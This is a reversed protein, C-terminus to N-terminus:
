PGFFNPGKKDGFLFGMQFNGWLQDNIFIPASIMKMPVYEGTSMHRHFVQLMYKGRNRAAMLMRSRDMIRRNRANVDNWEHDGPIQPKSYEPHHVPVYANRDCAIAVVCNPHTGKTRALIDPLIREYYALAPTSYQAPDTRHIKTYQTTILQNAAVEGRVMAEEFTWTLSRAAALTLGIIHQNDEHTAQIHREIALATSQSLDLFMLHMGEASSGQVRAEAPGVGEIEVVGVASDAVGGRPLHVLAGGLSLDLTHLDYRLPGVAFSARAMFPIREFRRREGEISQRLVAMTRNKLRMLAAEMNASSKGARQSSAIAADAALKMSVAHGSAERIFARSAGAMDRVQQELFGKREIIEEVARIAPAVMDFQDAMDRLASQQREAIHRLAELQQRMMEPTAREFDSVAALIATSEGALGLAQEKLGKIQKAAQLTDHSVDEPAYVPVSPPSFAGVANDAGVSRLVLDDGFDHVRAVLDVSENVRHQVDAASDGILRMTLALDGELQELVREFRRAAQEQHYDPVVLTGAREVSRGAPILDSRKRYNPQPQSM